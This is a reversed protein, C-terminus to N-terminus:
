DGLGLFINRGLFGCSIFGNGLLGGAVLLGFTTGGVHHLITPAFGIAVWGVVVYVGAILWPPAGLWLNRVLAGVVALSWVALILVRATPRDLGIAAIPTYTAAIGILITSHDLRRMRRKAAPSWHGRHYCASVVYMVTVGAVYVAVALRAGTGKAVIILPLGLAPFIVGALLHSTGRFRPRTLGPDVPTLDLVDVM